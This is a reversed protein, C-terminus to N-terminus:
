GRRMMAADQQHMLIFLAFGGFVLNPLWAAFAVPLRGGETLMVMANGSIYLLLGFVLGRALGGYGARDRGGEQPLCFAIAVLVMILVSLPQALKRQLAYRYGSDDLGLAHLHDAFRMLQWGNMENPWPRRVTTVSSSAALTMTAVRTVVVGHERDPQSMVVQEMSWGGDRYHARKADIRRRWEGQDDSEVMLLAVDGGSLPEVRFFRNGDHYWYRKRQILPAKGHVYVQEIYNLRVNTVPTVWETLLMMAAIAAVAVAVMPLAVKPLGLGCARMVVIEQHKSLSMLHVVGAILLTLPMFEAIMFPIKLLIYEVMIEGTMGHHGLLRSKDFGEIIVFIALLAAQTMLLRLLLGHFQWRFLIPM